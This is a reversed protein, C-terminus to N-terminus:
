RIGVGKSSRKTESSKISEGGKIKGKSRRVRLPGKM